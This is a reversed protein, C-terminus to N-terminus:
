VRLGRDAWDSMQQLRQFDAQTDVYVKDAVSRPNTRIAEILRDLREPDMTGTTSSMTAASRNINDFTDRGFRDVVDKKIIFEGPTLMGPVIDGAGSGPVLGGGAYYGHGQWFDWAGNPDHYRNRIYQLGAAIQNQVSANAAHPGLGYAQSTSDLFQFLGSASSTPNEAKPNWSSEHSVLQDLSPWQNSWGALKLM